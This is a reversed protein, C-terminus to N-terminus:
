STFMLKWEQHLGDRQKSFLFGAEPFEKQALNFDYPTVDIIACFPAWLSRPLPFHGSLGESM